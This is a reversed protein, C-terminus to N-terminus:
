ILFNMERLGQLFSRDRSYRFISPSFSKKSLRTAFINMIELLRIRICIVTDTRRTDFPNFARARPFANERTQTGREHFFTTTVIASSSLSLSLSVEFTKSHHLLSLTQFVQRPANRITWRHSFLIEIIKYM